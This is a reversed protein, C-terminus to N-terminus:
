QHDPLAQTPAGNPVWASASWATVAAFIAGAVIVEAWIAGSAPIVAPCTAKVTPSIPPLLTQDPVEWGCFGAMPSRHILGASPLMTEVHFPVDHTAMWNPAWAMWGPLRVPLWSESNAPISAAWTLKVALLM